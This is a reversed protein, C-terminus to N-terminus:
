FCREVYFNILSEEPKVMKDTLHKFDYNNVDVMPALCGEYPGAGRILVHESFKIDLGLTTIIGRGLIMGYKGEDSNDM